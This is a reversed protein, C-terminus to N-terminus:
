ATSAEEADPNIGKKIKEMRERARKEEERKRKKDLLFIPVLVILAFGVFMIGAFLIALGKTITDKALATLRTDLSAVAANTEVLDKTNQNIVKVNENNVGVLEEHDKRLEKANAESADIRENTKKFELKQFKEIKAVKAVLAKFEDASVGSQQYVTANSSSNIFREAEAISAGLAVIMVTLLVLVIKKM